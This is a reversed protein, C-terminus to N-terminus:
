LFICGFFVLDTTQRAEEGLILEITAGPCACARAVCDDEAKLRFITCEKLTKFFKRPFSMNFAPDFPLLAISSTHIMMM